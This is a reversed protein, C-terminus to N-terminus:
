QNLLFQIKYCNLPLTVWCMETFDGTKRRLVEVATINKELRETCLTGNEIMRCFPQNKDFSWDIKLVEFVDKGLFLMGASQISM